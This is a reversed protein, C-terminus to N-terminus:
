DFKIHESLHKLASAITIGDVMNNLAASLKETNWFTDNFDALYCGAEFDPVCALYGRSSECVTLFISSRSTLQIETSSGFNKVYNVKCQWYEKQKSHKPKYSCNILM